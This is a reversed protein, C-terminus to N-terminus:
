MKAKGGIYFKLINVSAEIDRFTYTRIRTRKHIRSNEEKIFSRIMSNRVPGKEKLNITHLCRNVTLKQQDEAVWQFLTMYPM